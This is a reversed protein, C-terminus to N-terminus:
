AAMGLPTLALAVAAVVVVHATFAYLSNQGLPALLWTLPRNVIRWQRTLILFMFPIVVAAAVVRGIRLAAKGFVFEQIWLQARAFVGAFGALKAPLATAPM